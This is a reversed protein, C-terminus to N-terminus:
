GQQIMENAKQTVHDERPHVIYCPAQKKEEDREADSSDLITDLDFFQDLSTTAV